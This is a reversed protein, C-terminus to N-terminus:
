LMMVFGWISVVILLIGLIFFIIRRYGQGHRHVDPTGRPNCLWNWNQIDGILLLVGIVLTVVNHYELLFATINESNM